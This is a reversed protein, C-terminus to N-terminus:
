PKGTLTRLHHDFWWEAVARDPCHNLACIFGGTDANHVMVSWPLIELGWAEGHWLLVLRTGDGLPEERVKRRAYDAFLAAWEEESIPEDHLGVYRKM